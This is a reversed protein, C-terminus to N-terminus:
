KTLVVQVTQVNKEHMLRLTYIGRAIENVNIEANNNLLTTLVVKGTIDILEANVNTLDNLQINIKDTAPNPYISTSIIEMENIGVAKGMNLRIIPNRPQNNFAFGDDSSASYGPNSNSSYGVWLYDPGGLHEVAAMYSNGANLQTGAQLQATVITGLDGAGITIDDTSQVLIWDLGDFEFLKYVCVTGVDTNDGIYASISSAVDTTYIDYIAGIVYPNSNGVVAEQNYWQGQYDGNDTAYITDTVSINKIRTNNPAVQDTEAQNVNFSVTYNGIASISFGSNLGISDVAWPILSALSSSSGTYIDTAGDNVTANLEISTQTLMGINEVDTSFFFPQVQNLPTMYYEAGLGFKENKMTIDNDLIERVAFDDIQWGYDWAGQWRFSVWVSDENAAISSIDINVYDPNPTGAQTISGNIVYNVWTISDLSIQVTTIDQQWRRFMQQFEIKVNNFGTLDMRPTILRSDEAGGGSFNDGDSDAIVWGNGGTTSNISATPYAGTHGVTTHKWNVPGNTTSVDWDAPIGGAFDESFIATGGRPAVDHTVNASEQSFGHSKKLQSFASFTLFLGAFLFYIKKM